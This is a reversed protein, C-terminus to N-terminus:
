IGLPQTIPIAEDIFRISVTQSHTLSPFSLSFFFCSFSVCVCLSLSLPLSYSLSPSSHISIYQSCTFSGRYNIHTAIKQPLFHFGPLLINERERERERSFASFFHLSLSVGLSLPLFRSQFCSGCNTGILQKRNQNQCEIMQDNTYTEVTQSKQYKSVKRESLKSQFFFVM